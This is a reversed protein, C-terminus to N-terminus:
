EAKTRVDIYPNKYPIPYLYDKPITNRKVCSKTLYKKIAYQCRGIENRIISHNSATELLYNRYAIIPFEESCTSMGTTLVDWFHILKSLDVGAMYATFLSFIVVAVGTKAPSSQPFNLFFGDLDNKHEDTFDIIEKSTVTRRTSDNTSLIILARAVSIYRHTKYVNEYNSRSIAMQDTNSRKRNCDYIGENSVGRCVWMRVNSGSEIIALLRHQGDRLIGNEDISIASGVSEDWNGAMMDQKYAEVTGRSISRNGKMHALIYKAKKPTMMEFTMTMNTKM